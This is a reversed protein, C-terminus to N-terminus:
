TIVLVDIEGGAYPPSLNEVAKTNIDLATALSVAGGLTHNQYIEDWVDDLLINLASDRASIGLIKVYAHIVAVLKTGSSSTAAKESTPTSSKGQVVLLKNSAGPWAAKAFEDWIDDPDEACRIVTVDAINGLQTELAVLANNRNSM